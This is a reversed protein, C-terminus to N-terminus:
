DFDQNSGVAVSQVNYIFSSSLAPNQLNNTAESIFAFVRLDDGLGGLNTSFEFESLTGGAIKDASVNDGLAATLV